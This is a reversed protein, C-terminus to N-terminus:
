EGGSRQQREQRSKTRHCGRCLLQGNKPSGDGGQSVPVIHDYVLATTKSCTRCQGGDRERIQQKVSPIFYAGNRGGRVQKREDSWNPHYRDRHVWCRAHHGHIFVPIGKARHHRQIRIREGCGCACLPAESQMAEVWTDLPALGRWRGDEPVGKPM